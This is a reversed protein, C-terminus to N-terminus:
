EEDVRHETPQPTVTLVKLKVSNQFRHWVNEPVIVVDDAILDIHEEGSELQLIVTTMGELIMVIEDGSSHREWESDGSYFGVYIAGDRYPALEKFAKEAGGKIAMQPSRNPLYEVANLLDSISKKSIKDMTSVM